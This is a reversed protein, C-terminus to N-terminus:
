NNDDPRYAVLAEAHIATAAVTAHASFTALPTPHIARSTGFSRSGPSAGPPWAPSSLSNNSSTSRGM